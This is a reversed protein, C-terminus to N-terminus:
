PALRCKGTFRVTVTEQSSYPKLHQGEFSVGIVGKTAPGLALHSVHQFTGSSKLHFLAELRACRLVDSPSLRRKQLRKWLTPFVSERASSGYVTGYNGSRATEDREGLLLLRAEKEVADDGWGFTRGAGSTDSPRLKITFTTSGSASRSELSEISVKFAKNGHAYSVQRHSGFHHRKPDLDDLRKEEDAHRSNIKVEAVLLGAETKVSSARYFEDDLLLWTGSASIKGAYSFAGPAGVISVAPSKAAGGQVPKRIIQSTSAAGKTSKTNKQKHADEVRAQKVKDRIIKTIDRASKGEVNVYGVTRLLGPVPTDDLRFPLIYTERDSFARAQAAQRELNTWDKEVYHKSIFFVCFRAKNQYIDSLLDFLNEGVLKVQHDFDYFTTIHSRQLQANVSQVIKRDEGAFSFAVEYEYGAKARKPVTKIPPKPAAQKAVAPKPSSVKRPKAPASKGNSDTAKSKPAAKAATTKSTTKPQTKPRSVVARKPKASAPVTAKKVAKSKSETLNESTM